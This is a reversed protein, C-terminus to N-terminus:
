VAFDELKKGKSLAESLWRPKLGRGSWTAGTEIDRFKPAVKQRSGSIARKTKGPATAIDGATLDHQAMLARIKEIAEARASNKVQAIQKEIAAAHELLEQLTPM